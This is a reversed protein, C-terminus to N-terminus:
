LFKMVQLEVHNGLITLQNICYARTCMCTSYTTVKCSFTICQVFCGQFSTDLKVLKNVTCKIRTPQGVM